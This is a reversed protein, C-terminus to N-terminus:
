GHANVEALLNLAEDYEIDQIKEIIQNIQHIQKAQEKTFHSILETATKGADMAFGQEMQERLQRILEEIKKYDLVDRRDCNLDDNQQMEWEPNELGYAGVQEQELLEQERLKREFTLFGERARKWEMLLHGITTSLYEADNQQCRAEMRRATYFLDIAGLGKANAKLAHIRIALRKLDGLAYLKEVEKKGEEYLKLFLAIQKRYQEMDGSVYFLGEVFSIDAKRLITECELYFAEGLREISRDIQTQTVLEPPLFTKAMAELKEWQIPKALYGDFGAEMFSARADASVNATLAIVPTGAELYEPTRKLEELTEIGDMEPMMIDLFVLHYQTHKIKELCEEGSEALDLQMQTRALLSQIAMRNLENDDVILIRARPALFSQAKELQQKESENGVADLSGIYTKSYEKQPIAVRFTSGVDVKSEVSVEGGMLETFKKVIALGLGAGEVHVKREIDARDYADFIHDMQDPAIGIGTDKVEIMLLAHKEERREFRLSFTVAGKKTYKMSNTILNLAIQRIRQSDGYIREPLTEEIKTLFVLNRDEARVTGIAILEKLMSKTDYWEEAVQVKGIEVRTMDFVNNIISDLIDASTKVRRAYEDILESKNERIIMENMSVIVNLPTRIEHSMNAMFDSKQQNERLAEFKEEQEKAIADNILQPNQLNLQMIILSLAVMAGAIMIDPNIFVKIGFTSLSLLVYIMASLKLSVSIIKWRYLIAVAIAGSYLAAIWMLLYWGASYQIMGHADITFVIESLSNTFIVLLMIIIPVRLYRRAVELREQGEINLIVYALFQYPIVCYCMLSLITTLYIVNEQPFYGSRMVVVVSQAICMMLDLLIMRQFLHIYAKKETVKFFNYIILVTLILISFLEFDINNVM